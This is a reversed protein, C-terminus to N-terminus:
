YYTLIAILAGSPALLAYIQFAVDQLKHQCTSVALPHLPSHPLQYLAKFRFRNTDIMIEGHSKRQVMVGKWFHGNQFFYILLMELSM